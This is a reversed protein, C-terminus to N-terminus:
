PISARDRRETPVTGIGAPVTDDSWAVQVQRRARQTRTITVGSRRAVSVGKRDARFSTAPYDLLGLVRDVCNTRVRLVKQTLSNINGAQVASAPLRNILWGNAPGDTLPAALALMTVWGSTYLAPTGVVSAAVAVAFGAASFRRSIVASAAALALLSALSLWPIGTRGALSMPSPRITPALSAYDALATPGAAVISVVAWCGIAVAAAAAARYSREGISWAILSIPALKLSALTGVIVGTALRGRLKWAVILCAPFFAAANGVALQEGIPRALLLALALGAFGGRFGVYFCAGLLAISMAALWLQFGFPVVAISRWVVAIPPPSLLAAPSLSPELAVWRDGLQLIYLEHGSNLREGAALYTNADTFPPYYSSPSSFERFYLSAFWIAVVCPVLALAARFMM